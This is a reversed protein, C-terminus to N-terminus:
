LGEHEGEKKYYLFLLRLIHSRKKARSNRM